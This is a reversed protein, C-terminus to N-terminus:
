ILEQIRHTHLKLQRGKTARVQAWGWDMGGKASATEGVMLSSRVLGGLARWTTRDQVAHQLLRPRWRWCRRQSLERMAPMRYPLMEYPDCLGFGPVDGPWNGWERETRM